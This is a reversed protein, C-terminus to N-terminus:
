KYMCAYKKMPSYGMYNEPPDDVRLSILNLKWLYQHNKEKVLHQSLLLGDMTVPSLTELDTLPIVQEEGRNVVPIANQGDKKVTKAFVSFCDSNPNGYFSVVAKKGLQRQVAEKLTNMVDSKRILISRSFKGEYTQIDGVFKASQMIIRKDGNYSVEYQNDKSKVIVIKSADLPPSFDSFIVGASEAEVDDNDNEDDSSSSDNDSSVPESESM